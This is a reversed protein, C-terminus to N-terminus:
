TCVTQLREYLPLIQGQIKKELLELGGSPLDVQPRNLFAAIKQLKDLIQAAVADHLSLPQLFEQARGITFGYKSKIYRHQLETLRLKDHSIEVTIMATRRTDDHISATEPIVALNSKSLERLQRPSVPIHATIHMQRLFKRLLLVYHHLTRAKQWLSWEAAVSWSTIAAMSPSECRLSSPPIHLAIHCAMDHRFQCIRAHRDAPAHEM